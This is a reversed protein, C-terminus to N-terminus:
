SLRAKSWQQELRTKERAQRAHTKCESADKLGCERYLPQICKGRPVKVVIKNDIM